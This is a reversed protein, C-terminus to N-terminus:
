NRYKNLKAKLESILFPKNIFDDMGAALCISRYSEDNATCAIIPICSHNLQKRVKRTIDTGKMDPLDYDMLILDYKGNATLSLAKIGNEAIDVSYGEGELLYRAIKQNLHNDEVVLVKITAQTRQDM